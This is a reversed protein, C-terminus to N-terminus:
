RRVTLEGHEGLDDHNALTCRLRYTGPRLRVTVRVTRGPHATPTTALAEAQDDSTEPPREVRLNHTLHGVNRAVLEVRGSTVSIDQPTIAFDDLTVRVTRSEAQVPEGGSCGALPTALAAALLGLAARRASPQVWPM